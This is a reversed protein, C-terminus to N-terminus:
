KKLNTFIKLENCDNLTQLVLIKNKKENSYCDQSILGDFIDHEGELPKITYIVEINENIIKNILFGKWNVFYKKDPEPYIHHRWWIRAASNDNINISSNLFFFKYFVMCIIVIILLLFSQIFIKKQM